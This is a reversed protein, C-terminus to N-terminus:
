VIRKTPLTLHTYSVSAAVTEPKTTIQGALLVATVPESAVMAVIDAPTSVSVFDCEEPNFLGTTDIFELASPPDGPIGAVIIKPKPM